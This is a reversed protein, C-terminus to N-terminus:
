KSADDKNPSSFPKARAWYTSYMNETVQMAIAKLVPSMLPVRASSSLRPPLMNGSSVTIMTLIMVINYVSQFDASSLFSYDFVAALGVNRPIM